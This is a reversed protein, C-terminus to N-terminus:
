NELIAWFVARNISSSKTIALFILITEFAGIAEYEVINWGCNEFIANRRLHNVDM